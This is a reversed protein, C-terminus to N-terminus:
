SLLTFHHINIGFQTRWSSVCGRIWDGGPRHLIYTVTSLIPVQRTLAQHIVREAARAVKVIGQSPIVLGRHNKRKLLHYNEDFSLPVADRVLSARCIDCSLKRLIQRVVFGAIYVLTNVVLGGFRTPLHSWDGFYKCNSITTWWSNQSLVDWCCGPVCDWGPSCCQWDWQTLCWM